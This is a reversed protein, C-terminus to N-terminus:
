SDTFGAQKHSGDCLPKIASAGCRCLAVRNRTEMVTGDAQRITVNGSVFLPGDDVIGIAAPLEPELDPGDPDMRFTLAGSPCREVMTIVQARVTSEATSGNELLQWISVLRTGCFGAHECISRDDRVTVGPADYTKAREDYSGAPTGDEGEFLVGTHSSDCFPKRRSQGCRCLFVLPKTDIRQTVQWTMPEGHESYVTRIRRLPLGGRVQYPGGRETSIGQDDGATTM